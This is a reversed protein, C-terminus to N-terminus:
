LWETPPHLCDGSGAVSGRGEMAEPIDHEAWSEAGCDKWMDVHSSPPNRGTKLVLILPVATALLPLWPFGLVPLNQHNVRPDKQQKKPEKRGKLYSRGEGVQPWALTPCPFLVNM